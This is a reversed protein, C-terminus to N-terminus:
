GKLHSSNHVGGVTKNLKPCRYGSTIKIPKGLNDRIVQLANLLMQANQEYQVPIRNDIGLKIATSSKELESQNFNKTQVM